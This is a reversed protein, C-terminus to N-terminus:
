YQFYMFPDQAATSIFYVVVWFLVLLVLDAIVTNKMKKCVWQPFPTALVLGAGLIAFYDKGWLIFDNEIQTSGIFNFLRGVFVVMEHWDGIAFPVWSLLIVFPVYLHCLIHSKNM